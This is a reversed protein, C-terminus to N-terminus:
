SRVELIWLKALRVYRQDKSVKEFAKIADANNKLREYAIGQLIYAEDYYKLNGKTIGANIAAAAKDPLGFGLYAAGVQV